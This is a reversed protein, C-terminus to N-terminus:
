QNLFDSIVQAYFTSGNASMHFGDTAFCNDVCLDNLDNWAVLQVNPNNAATEYILANNGATWERDVDNTLLIVKPVDALATMMRQMSEPKIDGNTGLHLLVVDGLRGQEKLTEAVEVGDAFQRSEVADVVFGLAQVKSAAGLMVSDGLALM